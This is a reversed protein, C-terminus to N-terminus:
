EDGANPDYGSDQNDGTVLVDIEVGAQQLFKWIADFVDAIFTGIDGLAGVLTNQPDYYNAVALYRVQQRVGDPIQGVLWNDRRDHTGMWTGNVGYTMKMPTPPWLLKKDGDCAFVMVSAHFGVLDKASWTHTLASVSGDPFMQAISQQYGTGNIPVTPGNVWVMPWSTNTNSAWVPAHAQDYVVFNGDGQAVAFSGRTNPNDDTGTAWIAAGGAEYLVLNGDNQMTLRDAPKGATGSAWIPTGLDNRYLVLNGDAQLTLRTKGDAPALSDNVGLSQNTVLTDTM